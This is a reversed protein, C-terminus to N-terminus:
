SSERCDRCRGFLALHDIEAAFGHRSLAATRVPELVDDDLDVITGCDHCVLHHHRQHDLIQYRRVGGGLDTEAIIGLDRFTELTRYLTARNVAPSMQCIRASIEDATLHEGADYLITLIQLRQPTVRQGIARLRAAMEQYGINSMASTALATM